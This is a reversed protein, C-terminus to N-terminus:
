TTGPELRAGPALKAGAAIVSERGVLVLEEATPLPGDPPGGLEAAAGVVVDTDLISWSVHAGGEIHADAFIVADTVTAGAEVTVGPGLVSRRVLGHVECGPSLLSDEVIAGAHVRAPSRQPTRTLVPWGPVGFLGLDGQLLDRHAAFYTDPRGVDKWYGSMRYEYVSGREVLRPLLHDGFDGLGTEDPDARATLESQLEELVTVLVSPDYVFIETAIVGTTPNDPKDTLDTVRGLRNTEITAHYAAEEPAVVTTVVTCEANKDDHRAIAEDFDLRYVHDSSLVLLVEPDAARIQDRVRFLVDANGSALGDEGGGAGEQPMLLRFGGLTRDLDWPRGNAVESDLSSPLYQVSLWVNDVGSHQLSSLPFDVLQFVGGFPLSPKARERTLVDM